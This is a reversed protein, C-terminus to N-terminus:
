RCCARVPGPRRRRRQAKLVWVDKSATPPRAAPRTWCAPWAASSRGTPRATACRSRACRSRRRRRAAPRRVLDAGPLAAAAGPRRLPAAGRADASPLEDVRRGPSRTPPGDIPACSSRRRARDLVHDLGDPEGCWWTPVSPLRLPEGLLAECAAPLYPLLGPNELVGAGLGNVVRVRGRRVAEVLGAVGLQSDGRLELPDSWAADVRRLIVDVRECGARSRACGSGATASWWTAARRRAPLRARSAVFAQDYATESHTGPRCCSSGRTPWTARAGVPDAGLAAGLLVPEMRHLGAERYLEPLVRSIVRRNEMAYGIGPRRRPGTPSCGGSRRRRRPRPRHRRAGAAAPRHASPGPSWAPSAPTASSSPRRARHREALLRQEGYLDVLIANLLEARQALGVELPAWTAADIVLPVPDLRWPGHGRRRAPRLHRRRRRPVARDRRRGPAPRGRHHRRRGRRAGELGARLSATPASWRTTARRSSRRADAPHGRRRLRPPRDDRSGRPPPGAAPRPHAPVGDSAARRGAERMARSTSGAPPTAARSSAARAAPRPRRPTSRRTTTPAAARTCSTTPRAASRRRARRHRRRRLAAARAGRDVPAAGVVAALRPLARRRLLEGPTAPRRDPARACGSVDRPAPAPDIGRVPVQLREVSSDVYRATGGATAEEGLM